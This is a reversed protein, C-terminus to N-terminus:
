TLRVHAQCSTDRQMSRFWPVRIHAVLMSGEFTKIAEAVWVLAVEDESRSFELRSGADRRGPEGGLRGMVGM